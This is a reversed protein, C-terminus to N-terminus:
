QVPIIPSTNWEPSAPAPVWLPFAPPVFAEDDTVWEIMKSWSRHRIKLDEIPGYVQQEIFFDLIDKIVPLRTILSLTRMTIKLNVMSDMTATGEGIFEFATGDLSINDVTMKGDGNLELALTGTDIVIVPTPFGFKKWLSKLIPVSGLMADELSLNVRGTFDTSSTSPSNINIDGGLRGSLAGRIKLDNRMQALDIDELTVNFDYAEIKPGDTESEKTSFSFGGAMEGGLLDAKLNEIRIGEDNIVLTGEKDTDVKIEDEATTRIGRVVLQGLSVTGETISMSASFGTAAAWSAQDISLMGSGNNLPIGESVQLDSMEIKGTFGVTISGDETNLDASAHLGEAKLEGKIGLEQLTTALRSGALAPLNSTLKIGRNSELNAEVHLLSDSLRKGDLDYIMLTSNQSSLQLRNSQIQNLELNVLGNIAYSDEFNGKANITLPRMDIESVFHQPQSPNFRVFGDIAGGWDLHEGWPQQKAFQQAGLILDNSLPLQHMNVTAYSRASDHSLNGHGRITGDDVKTEIEGFHFNFKDSAAYLQANNATIRDLSVGFQPWDVTAGDAFLQANLQPYSDMSPWLMELRYKFDGDIPFSALDAPIPLNGSMIKAETSNPHWGSGNAGVSLQLNEGDIYNHTKGSIDLKSKAATANVKFHTTNETITIYAKEVQVNMPLLKPQTVCDFVDLSVSYDLRDDGETFLRVQANAIGGRPNGLDSILETIEPNGSLSDFAEQELTINNIAISLDVATVRPRFDVEGNIKVSGNAHEGLTHFILAGQALAIYGGNLQSAYPFSFSSEDTPAFGQYALDLDNPKIAVAWEFSDNHINTLVQANVTGAAQTADLFAPIESEIEGLWQRLEQNVAIAKISHEMQLDVGEHDAFSLAGTSQVTDGLLDTTASINLGTASSGSINIRSSGFSLAPSEMRPNKLALDSALRWSYGGDWDGAAVLDAKVAGHEFTLQATELIPWDNVLKGRVSMSAKWDSNGNNTHLRAQLDGVTPRLSKSSIEFSGIDSDLAGVIALEEWEILKSQASVYQVDVDRIDLTLTTVSRDGMQLAELMERLQSTIVAQASNVKIYTPLLHTDRHPSAGINVQALKASLAQIGNFHVIIESADLRGNSWCYSVNGSVLELEPSVSNLVSNILAHPIRISFFASAAVLVSAILSIRALRSLHKLM